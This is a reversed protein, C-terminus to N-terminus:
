DNNRLKRVSLLLLVVSIGLLLLIYNMVYSLSEGYLVESSAVNIWTTPIFESIKKLFSPMIERPWFCGGLMAFPINIVASIAGSQRLDNSHTAIFLGLSVTFVAFIIFLVLISFPTDGLNFKFLYKMFSFFLIVQFVSITLFSLLNEVIYRGRTLPTTFYRTFLNKEKDKILMNTTSTTLFLMNLVIFGLAASTKSKNGEGKDVSEYQVKYSGEEYYKIGKYFEEESGKSVSAIKKINNLYGDLYLKISMAANGEKVEYSELSVDKGNIIDLIFGKPIVIAYDVDNNVLSNQINEEDELIVTGKTKINEILKNSFETKDKDVVAIKLPETGNSGSFAIIMFIIPLVLIFLLNIKNKFLRKLNTLYITM